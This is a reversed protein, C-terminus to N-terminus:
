EANRPLGAMRSKWWGLLLLIGAATPLASLLLWAYQVFGCFLLASVGYFRGLLAFGLEPMILLGLTASLLLLGGVLLGIGGAREWRWSVGASVWLVLVVTFVLWIKGLWLQGVCERLPREMVDWVNVTSCISLTFFVMAALFCSWLGASALAVARAIRCMRKARRDKTDEDQTM